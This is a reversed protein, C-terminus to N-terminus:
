FPIDDVSSHSPRRIVRLSAAPTVSAQEEDPKNFTESMREIDALTFHGESVTPSVTVGQAADSPNFLDLAVFAGVVDGWEKEGEPTNAFNVIAKVAFDGVQFLLNGIGLLNM